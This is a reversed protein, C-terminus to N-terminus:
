DRVRRKKRVYQPDPSTIWDRARKWRVHMRRLANRITEDSVLRKTLGREKAVEAVMQLTWTSRAKGCQRPSQHLLDRLKECKAADLEPTATKPRSSKQELCALAASEFARIVNRVTQDSCGLQRAIQRPTKGEASLLLLQSRRLTFAQPSRLGTRLATRETGTLSRVFIPEKM